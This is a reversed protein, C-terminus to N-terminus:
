GGFGIKLIAYISAAGMLIAFFTNAMVCAMKAGEHHVYDEIITQMGLRMHVIASLVVLVMLLGVLPQQLTAVVNAHSEGALGILLVVFFTILAVNSVATLRQLWFHDTGSKASGLYRVRGLPTRMSSKSM